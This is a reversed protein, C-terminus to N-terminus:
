GVINQRIWSRCSGQGVESVSPTEERRVRDGVRGRDGRLVLMGSLQRRPVVVLLVVVVEVLDAVGFVFELSGDVQDSFRYM